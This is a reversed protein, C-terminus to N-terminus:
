SIHKEYSVILDNLLKGFIGLTVMLIKFSSSHIIPNEFTRPPTKTPNNIKKGEKYRNSENKKKLIQENIELHTVESQVCIEKNLNFYIEIEANTTGIIKTRKFAKRRSSYNLKKLNWDLENNDNNLYSIHM